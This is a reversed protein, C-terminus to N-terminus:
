RALVRARVAKYGEMLALVAVGGLALTFGQQLTIADLSLSTRLGPIFPAAMQLAQAGVIAAVLIRNASLPVRFASRTESRCNLCHANECWVLLWLVAGQAAAHEMGAHLAAVYFAFAIVGIMGGSFAVAAIMTRDFIPARAPRPKRQLVGAEGREFALAVDQLGNTVLNLWLLQLATLPPPLGSLTALLMLLIEAAGTSIVLLVVKRLNDYAIRGEEIGAVISAFNDDALILDSAERAVDTGSRGMAVGIDAAHLASADNVGDGTVAVIHGQRQLSEVIALKQIPEIRAFVRGAAVAADFSREDSAAKLTAGTVVDGIGHALGLLEGIALATLPHDGTVMVVRIGAEGAAAVAAAAEPRLPDILGALGVLGLGVLDAEGIREVTGAAVAIVRYGRAALAQSASLMEDCDGGCLAAITEPAGKALATITGAEVHFAAAFRRESEYPIRADPDRRRADAQHAAAADIFALDVADGSLGEGDIAAAESSGAGTMLLPAAAADTPALEGLKPRWVRDVTLRNQTLTGTKDTAILTCAGLGEVAMMHRVIVNRRGMRQMAISLAVTMAVPLGEPIASVALAVALLVIETPVSGRLWELGSILAILVMTVIAVDRTFRQMSVVLPPPVDPRDLSAALAGIVTHSATAVVVGRGRGRQITTGAHLMTARDGLASDPMVRADAHKEVAMSEGTLMSEDVLLGATEILRIDAAVKEGSELQVVDGTVLAEGDIRNLRGDRWVAITSHILSKLARARSEARWEQFSGIAANSILVIFIFLADSAHGLALSVGAAALLLYIFPSRFQDLVVGILPKSKPEPLHNSGDRALRLAAESATLGGESSDLQQIIEAVPLTAWDPSAAHAGRHDRQAEIM